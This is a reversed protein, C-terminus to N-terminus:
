DTFINDISIAVSDSDITISNSYYNVEGYNIKAQMSVATHILINYKSQPNKIAIPLLDYLGKGYKFKNFNARIIKGIMIKWRLIVKFSRRHEQKTLKVTITFGM